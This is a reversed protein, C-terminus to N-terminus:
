LRNYAWMVESVSPCPCPTPQAAPCMTHFKAIQQRSLADAIVNISGPVFEAYISFNHLASCWTLQRMLKMVDPAKSCGKRIIAVTAMNDCHFLIRQTSWEPGWLIAAVVIPYLERFAMSIVNDTITPLDLPWRESFWRGGNFGGHGVTSAADTYIELDAAASLHTQQFMSVGNWQALFKKWMLLDERCAKTIHVHYHLHKVTTSLTILYSVFSRGALIVRSAFNMHGLLQLLERKTCTSRALFYDIFEVIRSLKNEPLRAQMNDSDLIIGLYELVTSPGATKETVMPINLRNFILTLLAMTRDACSHPPDLTLFDDLLHFMIDISYNTQAIYCIAQSLQDFIIPSSRCGFALRTYYYYQGRWKICFLHYQSPTIPILKFASRIDVKCMLTGPGLHVIEKIADDLKVYSLSCRDKDILDNISPVGQNHPSSLDVILRLKRSYKGEAVGIPSVRYSSFPPQTFPGQLFGNKVESEILRDVAEPQAIASQLNKSEKTPLDTDSVMTDFGYTLGHILYKVFDPQPHRSLELHLQGVNV